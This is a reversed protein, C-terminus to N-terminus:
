VKRGDCVAEVTQLNEPKQESKDDEEDQRECRKMPLLADNVVVSLVIAQCMPVNGTHQLVAKAHQPKASPVPQLAEVTLREGEKFRM